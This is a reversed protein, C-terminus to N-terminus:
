KSKFGSETTETITWSTSLLSQKVSIIYFYNKGDAIGSTSDKGMGIGGIGAGSVNIRFNENLVHQVHENVGLKAIELGNVKIKALVGGAIYGGERYFYLNTGSNNSSSIVPKQKTGTGSCQVLVFCFLISFFTFLTKKM